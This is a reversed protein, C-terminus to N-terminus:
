NNDSYDAWLARVQGPSRLLLKRMMNARHKEVTKVSIGLIDAIEYNRKRGGVLRFVEFERPTLSEVQSLPQSRRRNEVYERTIGGLVGPSLFTKGGLVVHAGLLLEECSADKVMYGSVGAELCNYVCEESDEDALALVKIDQNLDKLRRIFPLGGEELCSPDCILMDPGHKEALQLADQEGKAEGVIRAWPTEEFVARLGRRVLEAPDMIILSYPEM